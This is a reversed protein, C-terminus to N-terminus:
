KKQAAKWQDHRDIYDIVEQWTIKRDEFQKHRAAYDGTERSIPFASEHWLTKRATHYDFKWHAIPTKVVVSRYIFGCTFGRRECEAKISEKLAREEEIVRLESRAKRTAVRQFPTTAGCNPCPHSFSQGLLPYPEADFGVNTRAKCVSCECLLPRM